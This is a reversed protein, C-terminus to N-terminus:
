ERTVEDPVNAPEKHGRLFAYIESKLVRWTGRKANDTIGILRGKIAGSQLLHYTASLSVKMLASAEKATLIEDEM